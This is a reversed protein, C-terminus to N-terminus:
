LGECLVKIIFEAMTLFAVSFRSPEMLLEEDNMFMICLKAFEHFTRILM